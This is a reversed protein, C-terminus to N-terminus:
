GSALLAAAILWSPRAQEKELIKCAAKNCDDVTGERDTLWAAIGLKDLLDLLEKSGEGSGSADVVGHVVTGLPKGDKGVERPTVEGLLKVIDGGEGLLPITGGSQPEGMNAKAVADGVRAKAAEDVLGDVFSKGIVDPKEMGLHAAAKPSCDVVVGSPDLTFCVSEPASLARGLVMSGIIDAGSKRPGADVSVAVDKGSKTVMSVVLEDTDEGGVAHRVAEEAEPRNATAVIDKAMALGM